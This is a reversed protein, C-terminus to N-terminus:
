KPKEGTFYRSVGEYISEALKKQYRKSQLMKRETPNSLFGVEVLAGPPKSHKLLYLTQIAKAERTTNDLNNRLEQQILKAVQENEKLSGYYFTQAGRWASSPIANLHISLYLNANSKNIMTLRNKLDEVKRRSYGRTDKAALDEDKERTMIVLAGQEQLYDRLMLSIKLTIEKELVEDEGVAGGDVGGHGPDLVIVKGSLPLSLSGSSTRHDIQYQVIVFLVLLAIITSMIKVKSM